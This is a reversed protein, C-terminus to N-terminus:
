KEPYDTLSLKKQCIRETIDQLKEVESILYNLQEITIKYNRDYRAGVYADRLLQFAKEEKENTRPFIKMLEPCYQHTTGKLEFLDHTKPKYGGFVLWITSYFSEAAKICNM